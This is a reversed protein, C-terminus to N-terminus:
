SRSHVNHSKNRLYEVRLEVLVGYVKSNPYKRWVFTTYYQLLAVFTERLNNCTAWEGIM